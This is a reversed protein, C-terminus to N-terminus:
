HCIFWYQLFYCQSVHCREEEEEQYATTLMAAKLATSRPEIGPWRTGKLASTQTSWRCPEDNFPVPVVYCSPILQRGILQKNPASM